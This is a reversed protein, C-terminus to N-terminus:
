TLTYSFHIKHITQTTNGAGKVHVLNVKLRYVCHGQKDEKHFPNPLEPPAWTPLPCGLAGVQLQCPIHNGHSKWGQLSGEWGLPGAKGESFGALPLFPLAAPARGVLSGGPCSQYWSCVSCWICEFTVM